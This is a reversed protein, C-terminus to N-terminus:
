YQRVKQTKRHGIGGRLPSRLCPQRHYIKGLSTILIVLGQLLWQVNSGDGDLDGSILYCSIGNRGMLEDLMM